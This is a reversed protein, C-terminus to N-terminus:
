NGFIEALKAGLAEGRLNRVILKGERDLLLTQPISTVSYTAAHDSQWGKLDSVHHWPLMDDQIAKRWAAADRDLSVGLIDFGQDKYKAYLARVAPNERRCPGCWSAWFDVLVVKGRLKSLAYTSSDPTMGAIDPAVMGPTSTGAKALEYELAATEGYNVNRYKDVYKKSFYSFPGGVQRQQYGKVLGGLALRYAGSNEPIRKLQADAWEITMAETTMSAMRTAYASFAYFVEPLNDYGRDNAFDAQNFWNLGYYEAERSVDKGQFYPPMLINASRWLFSKVNKLSDIYDKRKKVGMPDNWNGNQYATTIKTIRELEANHVSGMARAREIFQANAWLKVEPEEGVVVRALNNDTFGIGYTKPASKAVLFTYTGDQARAASGIVKAGFGVYQYLHLSDTPAPPDTINCILRVQKPNAPQASLTIGAMCFFALLLLTSQFKYMTSYQIIKTINSSCPNFLVTRPYDREM